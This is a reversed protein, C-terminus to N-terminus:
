TLHAHADKIRQLTKNVDVAITFRIASKSSEDAKRGVGIVGKNVLVIQDKKLAVMERGIIQVFTGNLSDDILLYKGKKYEVTAHLRSVRRDAIRIHCDDGRGIRVLPHRENVNIISEEISLVLQSASAAGAVSILAQDLKEQPVQFYDHCFQCQIFGKAMAMERAPVINKQGCEECYVIM